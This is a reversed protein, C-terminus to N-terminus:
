RAQLPIWWRLARMQNAQLADYWVALRCVSLNDYFTFGRFRSLVIWGCLRRINEGWAKMSIFIIWCDINIEHDGCLM